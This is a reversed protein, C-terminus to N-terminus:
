VFISEPEGITLCGTIKLLEQGSEAELDRWLEYARQVMPVYDTGEMYAERIIRSNGHSSGNKHRRANADLGLVRYGRRALHYATASGMAGLGVVIVDYNPVTATGM